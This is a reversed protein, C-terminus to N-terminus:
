LMAFLAAVGVLGAVAAGQTREAASGSSTSSSSTGTATATGTSGGSVALGSSSPTVNATATPVIEGSVTSVGLTTSGASDTVEAVGWAASGTVSPTYYLGVQTSSTGLPDSFVSTKSAERVESKVSSPEKGGGVWQQYYEGLGVTPTTSVACYEKEM